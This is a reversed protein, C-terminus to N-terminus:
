GLTPDQGRRRVAIRFSRGTGDKGMGVLKTLHFSLSAIQQQSFFGISLQVRTNRSTQVTTFFLM